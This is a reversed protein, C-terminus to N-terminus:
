SNPFPPVVSTKPTLARNMKNTRINSYYKLQMNKSNSNITDDKSDSAILTSCISVMTIIFRLCVERLPGMRLVAGM